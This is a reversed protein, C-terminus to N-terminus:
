EVVTVNVKRVGWNRAENKSPVHVDIKNGKIASGVDAATAYGYGEVHVKTGLPIVNPDVAIVKADPDKNLDVGTATVGTCGDCSATYATASVSITKGEPADASENSKTEQKSASSSESSKSTNKKETSQKEQRSEDEQAKPESQAQKEQSKSTSNNSTNTATTELSQGVFIMDSNLNNWQKLDQVSVNFEKGIGFLTDGKEVIYPETDKDESKNNIVLKQNPQITADNLNNVDMLHDVTTNYQNAIEWLNEGKKVEYSEASASTAAAGTIMVGTAIAAVMKRM